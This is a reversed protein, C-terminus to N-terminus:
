NTTNKIIKQIIKLAHNLFFGERDQSFRNYFFNAKQVYFLIFLKQNTEPLYEMIFNFFVVDIFIFHYFIM